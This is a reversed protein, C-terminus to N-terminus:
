YEIKGLLLPTDIFKTNVFIGDLCTIGILIVSIFIIFVAIGAVGMGNIPIEESNERRTTTPLESNNNNTLETTQELVRM